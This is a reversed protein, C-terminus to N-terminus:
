RRELYELLRKCKEKNECSIHTINEDPDGFSYLTEKSVKPEFDGCGCQCFDDLNLEIAM